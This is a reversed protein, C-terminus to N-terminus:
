AFKITKFIRANLCPASVKQVVMYFMFDTKSVVYTSANLLQKAEFYVIRLQIRLLKKKLQGLVLQATEM